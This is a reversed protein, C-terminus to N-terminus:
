IIQCTTETPRVIFCSANDVQLHHLVDGGVLLIALCVIRSDVNIDAVLDVLELSSVLGLSPHPQIPEIGPPIVEEEM